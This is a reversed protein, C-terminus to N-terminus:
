LGSIGNLISFTLLLGSAYAVFEPLMMVRIPSYRNIQLLKRLKHKYSTGPDMAQSNVRQVTLMFM